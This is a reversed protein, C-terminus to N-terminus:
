QGSDTTEKVSVNQTFRFRIDGTNGAENNKGDLLKIGPVVVTLNGAERRATNFVLYGEMKVGPYLERNKFITKEVANYRYHDETYVVEPEFGRFGRPQVLTSAPYVNKFYESTLANEQGGLGDLLVAKAIDISIKEQRANEVKLKFVTYFIKERNLYPNWEPYAAATELDKRKPFSLAVKVGAKEIKCAGLESDIEYDGNGAPVLVVVTRYFPGCGALLLLLFLAGPLLARKGACLKM